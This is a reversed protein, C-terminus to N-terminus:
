IACHLRYIKVGCRSDNTFIRKWLFCLMLVYINASIITSEVNIQKITVIFFRLKVNLRQILFILCNYAIDRQQIIHENKDLFTKLIGFFLYAIQCLKVKFTLSLFIILDFTTFQRKMQKDIPNSSIMPKM